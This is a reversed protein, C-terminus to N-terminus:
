ASTYFLKYVKNRSYGIAILRYLLTKLTQKTPTGIHVVNNEKNRPYGMLRYLLTKLKRQPYGNGALIYLMKISQKTTSENRDNYKVLNEYTTDHILIASMRYLLTKM